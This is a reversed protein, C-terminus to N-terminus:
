EIVEEEIVPESTMEPIKEPISEKPAESAPEKSEVKEEAKIEEKKVEEQPAVPESAPKPGGMKTQIIEGGAMMNINEDAQLFISKKSQMFVNDASKIQVRGKSDVVISTPGAKIYIFKGDGRISMDKGFFKYFEPNQTSSAAVERKQEAQPQSQVVQNEGTLTELEKMDQEMAKQDKESLASKKTIEAPQDAFAPLIFFTGVTVIFILLTKM